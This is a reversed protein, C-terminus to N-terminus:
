NKKTNTRKTNKKIKENKGGNIITYIKNLEQEEKKYSLNFKKAFEIRHELEIARNCLSIFTKGNRRGM